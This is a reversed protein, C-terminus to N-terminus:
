SCCTQTSEPDLVVELWTNIDTILLFMPLGMLTKAVSEMDKLWGTFEQELVLDKKESLTMLGFACGRGLGVQEAKSTFRDKCFFESVFYKAPELGMYALLCGAEQLAPSSSSSSSSSAETMRVSDDADTEPPRKQVRNTMEADQSVEPMEVQEQLKKLWEEETAAKGEMEADEPERRRKQQTREDAAKLRKQGEESSSMANMIRRRCDESHGVAKSGSKAADCGPCGDTYGHQVLEVERRIHLRHFEVERPLAQRPPLESEAVIPEAHIRLPVDQVEPDSADKPNPRWPTGVLKLVFQANGRQSPQLRRVSRARLVGEPTGVLVEDSKEVLCLFCGSMERSDMKHTIKGGVHFMVIESFQPLARKYQKGKRREYATKGDDAAVAFRSILQPTFEAAFLLLMHDPPLKVDHLEEASHKLVRICCQYEWVIREVHSNSKSMGVPSEEPVVTLELKAGTRVEKVAADMLSRLSAEQDHKVIMSSYGALVLDQAVAKVLWKHSSGKTLVPHGAVWRSRREVGVIMCFDTAKQVEGKESMYAYDWSFTPLTRSNQEEVGHKHHQPKGRGAVCSRCWVRYPFHNAALHAEVQQPTPDLPGRLVRVTSSQAADLSEGHVGLVNDDAHLAVEEAGEVMSLELM